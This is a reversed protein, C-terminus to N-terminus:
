QHGRPALSAPFHLRGAPYRAVQFLVSTRNSLFFPSFPYQSHLLHATDCGAVGVLWILGLVKLSTHALINHREPLLPVGCLGLAM